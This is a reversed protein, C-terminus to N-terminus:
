RAESAVTVAPTSEDPIASWDIFPAGGTMFLRLALHALAHRDAHDFELRVEDVGDSLARSSRIVGRLPVGDITCRVRDGLRLADAHAELRVGSLSIDRIRALRGDVDAFGM